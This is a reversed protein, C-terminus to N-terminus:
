LSKEQLRQVEPQLTLHAAGREAVLVRGLEVLARQLVAEIAVETRIQATVATVAQERAARRNSDDLLRLNEITQALQDVVATVIELEEASWAEERTRLVGLAGIIQGRTELPFALEGDLIISDRAQVAQTMPALWVSESVDVRGDRFHYGGPTTGVESLKAWSQQVYAQQVAQVETLAEVLSEVTANLYRGLNLLTLPLKRDAALAEVDLRTEYDGVRVQELFSVYQELAADLHQKGTIESQRIEREAAVAAEAHQSAASLERGREAQSLFARYMAGQAQENLVVLVIIVAGLCGAWFIPM